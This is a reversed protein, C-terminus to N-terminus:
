QIIDGLGDSIESIRSVRGGERCLATLDRKFQSLLPSTELLDTGGLVFNVLEALEERLEERKAFLKETESLLDM